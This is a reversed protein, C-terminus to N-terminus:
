HSDEDMQEEIANEIAIEQAVEVFVPSASPMIAQFGATDDVSPASRQTMRFAAYAAIALM